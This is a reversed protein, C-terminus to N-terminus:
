KILLCQAHVFYELIFSDKSAASKWFKNPTIKLVTLKPLPLFVNCIVAVGCIILKCEYIFDHSLYESSVVCFAARISDLSELPFQLLYLINICTAAQRCM